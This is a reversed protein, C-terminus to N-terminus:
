YIQNNSFQSVTEWRKLEQQTDDLKLSITATTIIKFSFNGLWSAPLNMPIKPEVIM